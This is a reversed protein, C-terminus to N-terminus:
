IMLLVGILSSAFSCVLAIASVVTGIKCKQNGKEKHNGILSVALGAGGCIWGILAFLWAFVIGCAGVVIGIIGMSEGSNKVTNVDTDVILNGSNETPCDCYPCKMASNDIEKGCKLCFM